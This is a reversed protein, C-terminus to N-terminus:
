VRRAPVGVVTAGDPVDKTVVAGAGVVARAGIVVGPLVRAGLGVLTDVGVRVRGGLVAGPAIHTNEGLACEHEVIAGTNIIAHPAIGAAAQVVARAGVLTGAGITASGSVVASAHRVTHARSGVVGGALLTLVRRRVSLGGLALIWCTGEHDSLAEVCEAALGQASSGAEARAGMVRGIRPTPSADAVRGRSLVAHADDDLFEVRAWTRASDADVAERVVLAHGGGGILLLRTARDTTTHQAAQDM